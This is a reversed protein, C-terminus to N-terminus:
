SGEKSFVVTRNQPPGDVESVVVTCDPREESSLHFTVPNTCARGCGAEGRECGDIPVANVKKPPHNVLDGTGSLLPDSRVTHM